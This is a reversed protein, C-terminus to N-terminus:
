LYLISNVDIQILEILEVQRIHLMDFYGNIEVTRGSIDICDIKPELEICGFVIGGLLLFGDLGTFGLVM